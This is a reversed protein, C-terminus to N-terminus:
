TGLYKFKMSETYIEVKLNKIDESGSDAKDPTVSIIDAGDFSVEFTDKNEADFTTISGTLRGPVEGQVGRKEYHELFKPADPEPVYVVLNPFEIQSPCKRPARLAAVGSAHYELINQKITFSDVKSIRSCQDNFGALEFRFNNANWVKQKEFGAPHQLKKGEGKKFVITEVALSVSLYAAGKDTADLKPFVLEKILAETFERRAREIYYFDAAVVAGTRRNAVGIFFEEIWKYFPPSMSMGVQLKLDEFKPKGLQRWRSYDEGHQYTMVDSKISGGEISKFLGVEDKSDLELAFHAAAYARPQQNAM